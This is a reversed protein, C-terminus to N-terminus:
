RRRALLSAGLLAVVSAAVGFGPAGTGTEETTAADTPQGTSGTTEVTMEVTTETENSQQKMSRYEEFAEPHVSRMVTEAADVSRPAAQQLNNEDVRVVNDERIATTSRYADNDPIPAGEPAVIWAPNMEVVTEDNIQGFGSIGAEAAGNRLGATTMVDGIFTNEGSTYGYFVNLGVPKEEDALVERMLSVSERIDDATRQGGECNGTLRGIRETKNAVYELSTGAGFVFVPVGQDRIQEIRDEALGYTSNPVLVLDPDAALVREVSPGSEGSVNAKGDAGELYSAYQSVGVVEDRAGIEWMTQAASPNLTVVREPDEELTVETGTADTASYPFSCSEQVSSADDAQAAALGATPAVAAVVLLAVLAVTRPQM